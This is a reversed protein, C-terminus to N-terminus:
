NQFESVEVIIMFVAIINYYLAFGKVRTTLTMYRSLASGLLWVSCFSPYM